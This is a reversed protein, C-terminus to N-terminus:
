KAGPQEGAGRGAKRRRLYQIFSWLGAFKYERHIYHEIVYFAVYCARAFGWVALALLAAVKLSPHELLLLGSALVGVLFLLAGKLYLLGRSQTDAM